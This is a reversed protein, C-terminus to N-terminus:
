LASAMSGFVANWSVNWDIQVKLDMDLCVKSLFVYSCQVCFVINNILLETTSNYGLTRPVFLFSNMLSTSKQLTSQRSAPLILAFISPFVLPFDNKVCEITHPAATPLVPRETGLEHYSQMTSFSKKKEGNPVIISESKVNKLSVLLHQSISLNIVTQGQTFTM